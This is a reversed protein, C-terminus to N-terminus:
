STAPTEAGDLYATQRAQFTSLFSRTLQQYDGALSSGAESFSEGGKYWPEAIGARAEYEHAVEGRKRM